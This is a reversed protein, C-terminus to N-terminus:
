EKDLLLDVVWCGRVHPGSSRLHALMEEDACGADELADALIPLQDYAREDDITQALKRASGDNRALWAPDVRRPRFLLPGILDRILACQEALEGTRAASSAASWRPSNTTIGLAAMQNLQVAYAANYCAYAADGPKKYTANVCAWAARGPASELGRNEAAKHADRMAATLTDADIEGDAFREAAVVAARSREDQILHWVRRCCACAFLRLKRNRSKGTLHDLMEKPDTLARWHAETITRRAM